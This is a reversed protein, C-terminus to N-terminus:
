FLRGNWEHPLKDHKSMNCKACSVVMNNPWNTGGRNLPILHDDHRDEWAVPKGCWWCKGKQADYQRRMDAITHTGEANVKLARRKANRKASIAKAQEPHEKWWKRNEENVRDRRQECWKRKYQRVKDGNQANRKRQHERARDPNRKHWERGRARGCERCEAKLKGPTKQSPSFFETTVPWERGCKTCVKTTSNTM